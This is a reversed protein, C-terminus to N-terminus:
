IKNSFFFSLLMELFSTLHNMLNFNLYKVTFYIKLLSVM